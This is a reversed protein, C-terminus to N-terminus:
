LCFKGCKIGRTKRKAFTFGGTSDNWLSGRGRKQGFDDTRLVRWLAEKLYYGCQLAGFSAWSRRQAAFIPEKRIGKGNDKVLIRLENDQEAACLEIEGESLIGHLIANEVIPQLVMRPVLANQLSEPVTLHFEIKSFGRIKQIEMYRKLIEIEMELSVFEKPSIAFRLIDALDTAMEAVEPIQHIKGMWKMADLTNGLFHPNLQAQLMRIQAENLEKQNKLLTEQNLLLARRNEALAETMRNFRGALEGLEDESERLRVDLHDLTVERMASRLREIPTFLRRSMMFGMLFSLAAGFLISLFLLLLMLFDMNKSIPKEQRLILYLGMDEIPAVTYIFEGAPDELPNGRLFEERLTSLLETPLLINESYVPRWYASLLLIGNQVGYKGSFLKRFAEEELSALVYGSIEKDGGERQGKIRVAIQFLRSRFDSGEASEYVPSDARTARQLIGWDTPLSYSELYPATSYRLNGEKDYIDFRVTDRLGETLSFLLRNVEAREKREESLARKLEVSDSLEQLALTIGDGEEIISERILKLSERGEKDVQEKRSGRFASFMILLSLLLPILSCLLFAGFLRKRFSNQFYRRFSAIGKM